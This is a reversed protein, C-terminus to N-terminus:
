ISVSNTGCIRRRSWPGVGLSCVSSDREEVERSRDRMTTSSKPRPGDRLTDRSTFKRLVKRGLPRFEQVVNKNRQDERETLRFSQDKKFVDGFTVKGGGSPM